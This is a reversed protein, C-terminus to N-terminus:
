EIVEIKSSNDYCWTAGGRTVVHTTDPTSCRNNGVDSIQYTLSKGRETREVIVDSKKLERPFIQRTSVPM